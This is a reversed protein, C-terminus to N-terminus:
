HGLSGEKILEVKTELQSPSGPLKSKLRSMCLDLSEVAQFICKM